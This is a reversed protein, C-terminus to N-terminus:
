FCPSETCRGKCKIVNPTWGTHTRFCLSAKLTFDAAARQSSLGRPFLRNRRRCSLLLLGTVVANLSVFRMLLDEAVTWSISIKKKKEVRTTTQIQFLSCGICHLKNIPCCTNLSLTLLAVKFQPNWGPPSSACFYLFSGFDERIKLWFLLGAQGCVHVFSIILYHLTPSSKIFFWPAKAFGCGSKLLMLWIHVELRLTPCRPRLLSVEPRFTAATTPKRSLDTQKVVSPRKKKSSQWECPPKDDWAPGRHAKM